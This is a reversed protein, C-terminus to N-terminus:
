ICKISSLVHMWWLSLKLGSTVFVTRILLTASFLLKLHCGHTSIFLITANWYFIFIVHFCLLKMTKWLDDFFPGKIKAFMWVLWNMVNSRFCMILDVFLWVSSSFNFNNRQIKEVKTCSNNVFKATYLYTWILKVHIHCHNITRLKEYHINHSRVLRMIHWLMSWHSLYNWIQKVKCSCALVSSINDVWAIWLGQKKKDQILIRKAISITVALFSVGGEKYVLPNGRIQAASLPPPLTGPDCLRNNLDELNVKVDTSVPLSCPLDGKKAQSLNM